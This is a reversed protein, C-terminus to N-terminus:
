SFCCKSIQFTGDYDTQKLRYYYKGSEIDTDIYNYNTLETTTGKGSVFGINTFNEEDRSRRM